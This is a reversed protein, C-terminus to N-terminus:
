KKDSKKSLKDLVVKVGDALGDRDITTVVKETKVLGSVVQTFRWNGLGTTIKRREIHNDESHLVYVYGGELVSETPIKIVQQRSDLIIEMDASYGALFSGREVTEVFDAEIEVTRAQKAQELVYPSISRTRGKFIRKPFADLTIRAEMGPRIQAADIEDIPAAVYLEDMNILDIAPLTPIGPPSPTIYEGVEGNVEAVIGPFPATLFTREVMASASDVKAQSVLKQAEAAQCAAKKAEATAVADEYSSESTSSHRKLETLRRAQRGAYDALFCNERATAESVAVQEQALKLEAQIDKNWLTLLVQGQKVTDGKRVNLIAIQGGIAPALRARRRAKVSGARTNAVSAEVTGIEAEQVAVAIPKPRTLYKFGTFFGIAVILAILLYSRKV